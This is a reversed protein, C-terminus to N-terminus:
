SIVWGSTFLACVEAILAPASGGRLNDVAWCPVACLLFFRFHRISLQFRSLRILALGNMAVGATAGELGYHAGLLSSFTVHASEGAVADIELLRTVPSVLARVTRDGRLVLKRWLSGRRNLGESMDDCAERKKVESMAREEAAKACSRMATLMSFM